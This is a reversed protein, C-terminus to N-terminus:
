DSTWKREWTEAIAPDIQVGLDGAPILTTIFNDPDKSISAELLRPVPSPEQLELAIDEEDEELRDRVREMFAAQMQGVELRAYAQVPSVDRGNPTTLYDLVQILEKQAFRVAHIEELRTRMWGPTRRLASRDELAREAEQDIWRRLSQVIGFKAMPRGSAQMRYTILLGDIEAQRVACMSRYIRYSARLQRYGKFLPIEQPESFTIPHLLVNM